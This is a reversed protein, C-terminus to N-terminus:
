PRVPQTRPLRTIRLPKRVTVAAPQGPGVTEGADIKRVAAIQEPTLGMEAYEADTVDDSPM